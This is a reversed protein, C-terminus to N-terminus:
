IVESIPPDKGRVCDLLLLVEICVDKLLFLVELLDERVDDQDDVELLVM